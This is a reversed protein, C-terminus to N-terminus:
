AVRVPVPLLLSADLVQCSLLKLLCSEDLCYSAPSEPVLIIIHQYSFSAKTLNVSTKLESVEKRHRDGAPGGTASSSAPLDLISAGSKVMKSM